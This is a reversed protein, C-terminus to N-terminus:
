LWSSSSWWWWSWGVTAASGDDAREVPGVWCGADEVKLCRDEVYDLGAEEAIAHAKDHLSVASLQGVSRLGEFWWLARRFRL